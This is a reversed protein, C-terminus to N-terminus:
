APRRRSALKELTIYASIHDLSARVDVVVSGDSALAERVVPLAQEPTEITLGKAGFAQALLRFDLNALETGLTRGPYNLEQHMRITGYSRNNCVFLKVHASYQLATALESGTMLFGGDGILGVVQREQTRLAAAVAAPVGFGMAGSVAGLLLQSSRFPFHRHMWSSFNGADTTIVANAPLLQALASSVHGFDVGDAADLPQWRALETYVRHLKDRWARRTASVPSGHEALARLFAEVDCALKIRTQYVRGLQEGDPYVHILPQAPVPATPLRYGQSSVANLRTGVALMLDADAFTEAIHKPINYGLHGAFAPHDNDFVDQHKFSAAVPLEWTEACQKLAQRATDTRLCGGAILLPREASALLRVVASVQQASPPPTSRPLASAPAATAPEALMDEPLSVVVPGPTGSQAVHYAKAVTEPLRDSDHVEVVWKAMDAFTREYDVEQFARHGREAREVQGIFLVLPAADQEATHVAIAANSAGPGRSVFVTGARGTIKADAVAMFGAGTEHRCSILQVDPCDYLADLVALYSEGPVCFVRDVAHNRLTAVLTQAATKM